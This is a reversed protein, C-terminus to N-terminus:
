KGYLTARALAVIKSVNNDTFAASQHAIAM